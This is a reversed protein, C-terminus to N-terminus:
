VGCTADRRLQLKELKGTKVAQIEAAISLAIEAASDGGTMLGIPTHLISLDCGPFEKKIGDVLRVAKSKSSIVGIYALDPKRDYLTRLIDNDFKHGHTVIVAFSGPHPNFNKSFEIYDALILEDADPNAQRNAFEERNDVLITHFGLPKLFYFLAQGVHGGGFVYVSTKRGHVEYFVSAKGNCMMPIVQEPVNEQIATDSLLYEKVCSSGKFMLASSEAIVQKEIAGGGVTGTTAGSEEILMKFGVKGPVSGESSIVTAIIFAKNESQLEPVRKYIDM